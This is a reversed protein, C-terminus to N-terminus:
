SLLKSATHTIKCIIEREKSPLHPFLQHVEEWMQVKEEHPLDELKQELKSYEVLMIHRPIACNYIIKVGEDRKEFVLLLCMEVLPAYDKM